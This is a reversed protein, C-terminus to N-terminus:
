GLVNQDTNEQTDTVEDSVSDLNAETFPVQSSLIDELSECSSLSANVEFEADVMDEAMNFANERGRPRALLAIPVLNALGM